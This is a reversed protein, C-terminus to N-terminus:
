QINGVNDGKIREAVGPLLYIQKQRAKHAVSGFEGKVKSGSQGKTILVLVCTWPCSSIHVNPLLECKRKLWM